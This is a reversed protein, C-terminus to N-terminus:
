SSARQRDRATFHTFCMDESEQNEDPSLWSTRGLRSIGLRAAPVEGAALILRLDFEIAKGHAFVVAHQLRLWTADDDLFALFESLTLPGIRIEARSQRDFVRAGAVAGQGLDSHATGLRTQLHDPLVIWHGVFEQVAVPLELVTSLFAALRGPSQVQQVLATAQRLKGNDLRGDGSPTGPLGIGALARMMASVNGGGSYAVQVDARADAWARWFLAIHRHQLLNIFNLFSTDATAGATDGAFWRNSMREMIWRTLHLPLPGEPGILGLVNVAVQPPTEVTGPVMEAVDSAAFVLRPSQGLRAPETGPSGARGFRAGDRELLRLLQFFNMQRVTEAQRTLDSGPQRAEDAM